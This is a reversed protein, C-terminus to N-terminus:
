RQSEQNPFEERLRKEVNRAHEKIEAASVSDVKTRQRRKKNKESLIIGENKTITQPDIM